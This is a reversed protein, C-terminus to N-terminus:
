CEKECKNSNCTGNIIHKVNIKINKSVNDFETTTIISQYDKIYELLFNVRSSDLESMIDDLLLIPNTNLKEKLIEFSALKLTLLTTRKQGQSGYKNVDKSNINIDILDKSIGKLSTKRYIEYQLVEDLKNKIELATKGEFEAIYKIDIEEVNNTIAKIITKSYKFIDDLVNRRVETIYLIYSALKENLITIYEKDDNSLEKKLLANKIKLVKNYESFVILYKKSLQCCILDIFKRRSSQTGKVIELDDPSFIVVPLRGVVDVQKKLKIGDLSIQKKNFCDVYHSHKVDEYDNNYELDILSYKEDFTIIESDKFARYSKSFACIYVAEIINTKGQANDGIFLNIGKVFKIKENKYNRFNVLSVNKIYM